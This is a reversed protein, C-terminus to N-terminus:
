VRIFEFVEDGQVITTKSCHSLYTFSYPRDLKLKAKSDMRFYGSCEKKGNEAYRAIFYKNERRSLHFWSGAVEGGLWQADPPVVQPREPEELIAKVNTIDYRLRTDVVGEFHHAVSSYGPLEEREPICFKNPLISIITSPKPLLPFLLKLKWSHILEPNGNIIGQQVFRCCNTGPRIFPGFPIIGVEQVCKVNSYAAEFNVPCYASKLTGEGKCSENLQIETLIEEINAIKGDEVVAKTQITLRNDSLNDRIRGKQYPAEYRGCDFYFCAGEPNILVLSAHGVRYHFDKNIGLFRMMPDYWSGAQKGTFDPWAIAVAFGNLHNM